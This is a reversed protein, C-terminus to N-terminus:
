QSGGAPVEIDVAERITPAIGDMEDYFRSGKGGTPAVVGFWPITEGGIDLVGYQENGIEYAPLSPYLRHMMRRVHEGTAIIVAPPHAKLTAELYPQGNQILVGKLNDPVAAWKAFKWPVADVIAAIQGLPADLLAHQSGQLCMRLAKEARSWTAQGRPKPSDRNLWRTPGPRPRGHVVPHERRGPEFRQLFFGQLAQYGHEALDARTPFVEAPDISPNTTIYAIWRERHTWPSGSYLEPLQLDAASIRASVFPTEGRLQWCITEDIADAPTAGARELRAARQEFDSWLEYWLRGTVKDSVDPLLSAAVPRDHGITM